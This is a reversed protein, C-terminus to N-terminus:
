CLAAGTLISCQAATTTSRGVRQHVIMAHELEKM